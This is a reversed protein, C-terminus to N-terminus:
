CVCYLCYRRTSHENSANSANEDNKKQYAALQSADFNGTAKIKSLPIRKGMNGVVGLVYDTAENVTNSIPVDNIDISNLNEPDIAM